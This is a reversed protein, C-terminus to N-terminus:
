LCLQRAQFKYLSFFSGAEMLLQGIYTLPEAHLWNDLRVLGVSRGFKNDVPFISNDM